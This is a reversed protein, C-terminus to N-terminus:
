QPRLLFRGPGSPEATDAPSGSIEIISIPGAQDRAVARLGLTGEVSRAFGQPDSTRFTGGVQYRAAYPDAIVLQIGNHRNFVEVAEALTEGHFSVLRRHWTLTQAMEAPSSKSMIVKAIDKSRDITIVDGTELRYQSPAAPKALALGTGPTRTDGQAPSASNGVSIQVEGHIVMVNTNSQQRSVDFETGIDRVVTGDSVVQFPRAADHKVVFVAEGELMQIHRLGASFQAALRTHSFLTVISGDELIVTRLEGIATTYYHAASLPYLLLAGVLCIFAVLAAPQRRLWRALSLAVGGDPPNAAPCLSIIKPSGRRILEQVDIRRSRDLLGLACSVDMTQTFARKHQRSLMLWHLFEKKSNAQDTEPDNLRVVWEAAEQDVRDSRSTM